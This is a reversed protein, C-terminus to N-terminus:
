LLWENAKSKKVKKDRGLIDSAQRKREEFIFFSIQGVGGLILLMASCFFINAKHNQKGGYSIMNLLSILFYVM